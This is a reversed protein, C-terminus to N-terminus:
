ATQGATLLHAQDSFARRHDPTLFARSPIRILAPASFWMEISEATDTSRALQDWPLTVEMGRSRCWIGEPRIEIEEHLKAPDSYLENATRRVIRSVRRDFYRGALYGLTVGLIAGFAVLGLAVLGLFATPPEHRLKFLITAPFAVGAGMGTWVVQNRRQQAFTKTSTALRIQVDVVEEITSDFEVRSLAKEDSNMPFDLISAEREATRGSICV